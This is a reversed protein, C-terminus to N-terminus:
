VGLQCLIDSLYECARETAAHAGEKEIRPGILEVDFLGEYGLELIDAIIAKLPIVGDGPVARCPATRDGLVYDSIQILGTKSIARVIKQRLNAEFWCAHLEICVGTHVMSALLLCDDLTHAIHIDANFGSANEILVQISNDQALRICPVLLESLREAASEWELEGRAGTLLYITKTGLRAATDIIGLLNQVAVDNDSALALNECFVHNIASISVNNDKIATEAELIQSGNSLLPSVLTANKVGIAKCHSIFTENPNDSAQNLFAVQHLSIRSHM